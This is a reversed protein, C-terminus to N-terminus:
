MWSCVVSRCASLRLCVCCFLGASAWGGWAGDALLRRVDFLLWPILLSLLIACRMFYNKIVFGLLCLSIIAWSNIQFSFIPLFNEQELIPISPPQNIANNKM